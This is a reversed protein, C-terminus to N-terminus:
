EEWDDDEFEGFNLSCDAKILVEELANLLTQADQEIAEVDITFKINRRLNELCNEEVRKQAAYRFADSYLEKLKELFESMEPLEVFGVVLDLAEYLEQPDEIISARNPLTDMIMPDGDQIGKLVRLFDARKPETRDFYWSAADTGDNRGLEEAKDLLGQETKNM